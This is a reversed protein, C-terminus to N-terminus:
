KLLSRIKHSFDQYGSSSPKNYVLPKEEFNTVTGGAENLICHGAATDWEMTPGFRLYLHATGEAILCFKLSSGMKTFEYDISKELSSIM